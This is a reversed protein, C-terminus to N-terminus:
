FQKILLVQLSKYLEKTGIVVLFLFVRISKLLKAQVNTRRELEPLHDRVHAVLWLWLDGNRTNGTPAKGVNSIKLIEACM